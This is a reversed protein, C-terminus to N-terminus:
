EFGLAKDFYGEGMYTKRCFDKLNRSRKETAHLASIFDPHSVVYQKVTGCTNGDGEFKPNESYADPMIDLWRLIVREALSNLNKDAGKDESCGHLIVQFDNDGGLIDSELYSYPTLFNKQYHEITQNKVNSYNRKKGSGDYEFAKDDALMTLEVEAPEGRMPFVIRGYKRPVYGDKYSLISYKPKNISLRFGNMKFRGDSNTQTVREAICYPESSTHSLGRVAKTFDSVEGFYAIVVDVDAIPEGTLVNVVQGRIEPTTAALVPLVWFSFYLLTLIKRM